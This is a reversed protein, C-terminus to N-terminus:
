VFQNININMPVVVLLEGSVVGFTPEVEVVVALGGYMVDDFGGNEKGVNVVLRM